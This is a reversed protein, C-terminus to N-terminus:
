EEMNKLSIDILSKAVSVAENLASKNELIDDMQLYKKVIKRAYSGIAVCHPTVGCLHALETSRTNTGGSMMIYVPMKSDQFLQATAVAQLTTGWEDDNGSMAIGDAQIITSYPARKAIMRAVREKLKRDGLESRDLSICLMGDFMKNIQAWKEDVDNEYESIAHFEICDLGKEILKPLAENYDMLQSTMTIASQPCVKVCQSCGLCREKKIEFVNNSLIADHPCASACAGCSICKEQDISAKTIHPDGDIGVSVCLYRNEKIGARELGRKAADVIEPKACVDFFNCGALSYITVLKEVEVADENGAGCVLKFGKKEEFIDKLM